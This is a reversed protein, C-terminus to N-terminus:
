KGARVLIAVGRGSYDARLTDGRLTASLTGAPASGPNGSELLTLAILNGDRTGLIGGRVLGGGPRTANYRGSIQDPAGNGASELYLTMESAFFATAQNGRLTFRGEIPDGTPDQTVDLVSEDFAVISGFLGLGGSLHNILGRGSFPDNASRYYDYVNTDVGAMTAPQLLGPYFVHVLNNAAFNRALGSVSLREDLSFISYPQVPSDIHMWFARAVAGPPADLTYSEHDRNFPRRNTFAAPAVDPIVTSGNVTQGLAAVSLFYRKGRQLNPPLLGFIVYRGLSKGGFFQETGMMVTGDPGTLKVVAGKVAGDKAVTTDFQGTLSQEVMVVQSQASPDLIAYVVLQPDARPIVTNALECGNMVGMAALSAILWAGVSYLRSRVM